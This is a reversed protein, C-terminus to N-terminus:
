KRPIDIDWETIDGNDKIVVGMNLLENRVRDAEQWNKETKYNKRESILKNVKEEDINYIEIYKNKIQDIVTIPEQQLLGLTKYIKILATKINLARQYEKKNLLKNLINVYEFITSIALSTNFDNSMANIFTKNMEEYDTNNEEPNLDTTLKDIQNFLKYVSYIKSENQDFMGDIVNM